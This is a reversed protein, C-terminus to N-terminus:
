TSARAPWYKEYKKLEDDGYGVATMYSTLADYWVYVVHEPDEAVGARGVERDERSVSIDRLGAEVFKM